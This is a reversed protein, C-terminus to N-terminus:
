QRGGGGLVVRRRGQGKEKKKGRGQGGGRRGRDGTKTRDRGETGRPCSFRLKTSLVQPDQSVNGKMSSNLIKDTKHGTNPDQQNASSPSLASPNPYPCVHIQLWLSFCGLVNWQIRNFALGLSAKQWGLCWAQESKLVISDKPRARDEAHMQPPRVHCDQSLTPRDSEKCTMKESKLILTFQAYPKLLLGPSHWQKRGWVEGGEFGLGWIGDAWWKQPLQLPVWGESFESYGLAPQLWLFCVFFCVFLFLYCCYCVRLTCFKLIQRKPKKTKFAPKTLDM